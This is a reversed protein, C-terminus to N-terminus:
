PPPPSVCWEDKLVDNVLSQTRVGQKRLNQMRTQFTANAFSVLVLQSDNVGMGISTFHHHRWYPAVVDVGWHPGVQSVNCM